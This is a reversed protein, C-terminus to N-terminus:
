AHRVKVPANIEEEVLQGQDTFRRLSPRSNATVQSHGFDPQRGGDPYGEGHYWCCASDTSVSASAAEAPRPLCGGDPVWQQPDATLGFLYTVTCRLAIALEPMRAVDIGQGHEMASLTRNSAPVGLVTLRAVVDQQTLGLQHRRQAIQLACVWHRARNWEYPSQSM